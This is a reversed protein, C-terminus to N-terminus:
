KKYFEWPLVESLETLTQRSSDVVPPIVPTKLIPADQRIALTMTVRTGAGEPQDILVTGGHDAAASRILVMGLGIGYRNDEIGPQRQYRSFVTGLVNEAIGSGTDQISLQLMNTKQSLQAHITGGDPMFKVSNSVINLVARELQGVNVLGYVPQSLGEYTLCINTGELQTAIKEFIDHVVRSWDHIGSPTLLDSRGADSMNNVLRHMQHLSRNLRALQEQMAPNQEMGHMLADAAIMLNSLPNRLERAALSLSRLDADEPEQDLLFLDCGDERTVSAGCGKVSLKLKLYLCGGSFAAYEEAGTALLERVDMGPSLLYSEASQNCATIINEKVSFAPCTCRHLWGPLDNRIEM